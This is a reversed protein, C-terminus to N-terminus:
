KISSVFQLISEAIKNQEKENTLHKKDKENSLYGLEILVAPVTANKIISYSANKIEGMEFSNNKSMEASLKVAFNNSEKYLKSDKYVFFEVGSKDKNTNSNVHLSLVLDPKIANAIETREKLPVFVDSSRTFHIVVNKDKNLSKIKNAIQEVIQKENISNSVAGFDHGGHAADIVVNIQKPKPHNPNVFAFSIIATLLLFLQTPKKM